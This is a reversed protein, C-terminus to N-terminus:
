ARTKVDAWGNFGIVASSPEVPSMIDWLSHDVTASVPSMMGPVMDVFEEYSIKGDGDADCRKMMEELESSTLLSDMGQLCARLEDFCIDGTNDSDFLQFRARLRNQTDAAMKIQLLAAFQDFTIGTSGKQGSIGDIARELEQKTYSRGTAELVAVLEEIDLFGNGDKDFKRFAERCEAAKEPTLWDTVVTNRRAVKHKVFTDLTEVVNFTMQTATWLKKSDHGFRVQGGEAILPLDFRIGPNDMLKKGVESTTRGYYHDRHPFNGVLDVIRLHEEFITRFVHLETPLLPELKNWFRLCAQQDAVNEQHTLILCPVFLCEEPKLEKLWDHGADVIQRAMEDGAYMDVTHRYVNRPFQDLLIMLALCGRPTWRWHAYRGKLANEVHEGFRNRISIDTSTGKGFWLKLCEMVDLSGDPRRLFM